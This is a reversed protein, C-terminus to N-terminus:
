QRVKFYFLKQNISYKTGTNTSTCTFEETAVPVNSHQNLQRRDFARTVALRERRLQEVHRDAHGGHAREGHRLERQQERVRVRERGGGRGGAGRQGRRAPSSAVIILRISSSTRVRVRSIRSRRLRRLQRQLLLRRRYRGRERLREHADSSADRADEEGGGVDAGLEGLACRM